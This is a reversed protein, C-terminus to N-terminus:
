TVDICYSVAIGNQMSIILWENDIYDVGLYYVLTTEPPFKERSIKFSSQESDEKGLLKIIDQESMGIIHHKRTMSTVIKHRDERNENWKNITFTHKYKYIITVSIITLVLTILISLIVKNCLKIDKIQKDTNEKTMNKRELGELFYKKKKIKSKM